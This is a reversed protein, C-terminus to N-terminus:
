ALASKFLMDAQVSTGDSATSLNYIGALRFSRQALWAVVEPALAQGEYLEMFSVEVYVYTAAALLKPMGALAALEFGQVDLKVLIPSPLSRPDLVDDIRVVEITQVGQEGTGPFIAQQLQSIPLMSSSDAKASIHIEAEGRQEGAACRHLECLPDGGFLRAFTDAAHLPEFAHIRASPYLRRVLLSFQGVNAGVDVVCAVCLRRLAGEHEIAAAVGAGLGRRYIPTRLLRLFKGAKRLQERM